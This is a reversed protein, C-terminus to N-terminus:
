KKIYEKLKKEVDLVKDEYNNLRMELEHIKLDKDLILKKLKEIEKDAENPKEMYSVLKDIKELGPFTKILIDLIKPLIKKLVKSALM